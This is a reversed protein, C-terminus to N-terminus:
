PSRNSSLSPLKCHLESVSRLKGDPSEHSPDHLGVVPCQREGESFCPPGQIRPPPQQHHPSTTQCTEEHSSTTSTSAPSLCLTRPWFSHVPIRMFQILLRRLRRSEHALIRVNRAADM